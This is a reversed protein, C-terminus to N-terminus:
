VASRRLLEGVPVYRCLEIYLEVPFEGPVWVDAVLLVLCHFRHGCHLFESTSSPPCYLPIRIRAYVPETQDWM